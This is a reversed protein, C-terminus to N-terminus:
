RDIVFNLFLQYKLLNDFYIRKLDRSLCSWPDLRRSITRCTIGCIRAESQSLVNVLCFQRLLHLFSSTVTHHHGSVGDQHSKSVTTKKELSTSVWTAGQTRTLMAQFRNKSTRAALSTPWTSDAHHTQLVSPWESNAGCRQSSVPYPHTPIKTTRHPHQKLLWSQCYRPFVRPTNCCHDNSLTSYVQNSSTSYLVFASSSECTRDHVYERSFIGSTAFHHHCM